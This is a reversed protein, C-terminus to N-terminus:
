QKYIRLMENYESWTTHGTLLDKYNGNEDKLLKIFASCKSTWMLKKWFINPDTTKINFAKEFYDKDGIKATNHEISGFYRLLEPIEGDAQLIL